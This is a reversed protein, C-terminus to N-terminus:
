SPTVSGSALREVLVRPLQVVDLLVERLRVVEGLSYGSFSRSSCSRQHISAAPVVHQRDVRAGDAAGRTPRPQAAAALPEDVVGSPAGTSIAAATFM